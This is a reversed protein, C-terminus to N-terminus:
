HESKAPKAPTLSSEADDTTCIARSSRGTCLANWLLPLAPNRVGYCRRVTLSLAKKKLLTCSIHRATVLSYLMLRKWGQKRRRYIGVHEKQGQGRPSTSNPIM